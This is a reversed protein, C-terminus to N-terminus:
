DDRVAATDDRGVGFLKVDRRTVKDEDEGTLTVPVAGFSAVIEGMEGDQRGTVHGDFFLDDFRSRLIGGRDNREDIVEEAANELSSGSWLGDIARLRSRRVLRRTVLLGAETAKKATTGAAVTHWFPHM